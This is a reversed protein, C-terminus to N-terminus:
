PARDPVQSRCRVRRAPGLHGALAARPEAGGRDGAPPVDDEDRPRAPPPGQTARRAGVAGRGQAHLPELEPVVRLRDDAGM